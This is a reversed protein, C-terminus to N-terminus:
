HTKGLFELAEIIFDSATSLFVDPIVGKGDYNEGSPSNYHHTTLTLTSNDTFTKTAQMVGKGYTIEGMVTCDLLGMENYDQMAATFLEAGSASSSDCLVVSPISFVHDAESEHESSDGHTAVLPAKETGQAPNAKLSTFSSIPTDSPVMYSLMARCVDLYGGPNGRLDFIVAEVEAKELANIAEVFQDDTNGKFATIKVYGVTGNEIISYTVSDQSVSKREVEFTTEASGRLVTILVTTGVEGKIKEVASVAGIDSVREGNVAVIYDGALIGVDEAPSGELVGTVLITADVDSRRVNVGIGAFSGSMDTRYDETEDASRYFAYDDGIASIMSDVLAIAVAHQDALDIEDYYYDLFINATDRAIDHEEAIDMYYYIEFVQEVADLITRDFHPLEWRRLYSAVTNKDFPELDMNARIEDKPHIEGDGISTIIAIVLIALILLISVTIIIAGHKRSRNEVSSPSPSKKFMENDTM